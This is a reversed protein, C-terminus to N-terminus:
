VKIIRLMYRQQELFPITVKNIDRLRFNEQLAVAEVIKEQSSATASLLVLGGPAVVEAAVPLVQDPVSVARSVLGEVPKRVM